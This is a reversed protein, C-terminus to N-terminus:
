SFMNFQLKELGPSLIFDDFLLTQKKKVNVLLDM